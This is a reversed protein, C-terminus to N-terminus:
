QVGFRWVIVSARVSTFPGLKRRGGLAYPNFWTVYWGKSNRWIHPKGTIDNVVHARYGPSRYIDDPVGFQRPLPKGLARM